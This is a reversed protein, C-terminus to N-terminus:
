LIDTARRKGPPRHTMLGIAPQPLLQQLGHLCDSPPQAGGESDTTELLATLRLRFETLRVRDQERQAEALTLLHHHQDIRSDASFDLHATKGVLQMFELLISNVYRRWLWDVLALALVNVAIFVGLLFYAEHLMQGLIPTSEDLHVRYLNDEVIQSLHGYMLWALGAALGVELLVLGILLLKQIPEDVYQTKRRHIVTKKPHITNM